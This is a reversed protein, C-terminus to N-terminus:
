QMGHATGAKMTRGVDAAFPAARGTAALSHDSLRFRGDDTAALIRRLEHLQHFPLPDHPGLGPRDGVEVFFVVERRVLEVRVGRRRIGGELGNRSWTRGPRRARLPSRTLLLSRALGAGVTGSFPVLARRLPFASRLLLAATGVTRGSLARTGRFLTRM